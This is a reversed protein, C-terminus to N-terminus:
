GRLRVTVTQVSFSFGSGLETDRDNFSPRTMRAGGEHLYDCLKTKLYSLLKLLKTEGSRSLHLEVQVM